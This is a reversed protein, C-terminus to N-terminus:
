YKGFDISEIHLGKRKELPPLQMYDGYYWNLYEHLNEPAYFREGAFNVETPVGYYKAPMFATKWRTRGLVDAIWETPTDNYKLYRGKVFRYLPEWKLLSSITLIIKKILSRSCYGKAKQNYTVWIKGWFYQIMRDLKHPSAYDVRFVDVYIGDKEPGLYYEGKERIHSGKLRIKSFHEPWDVEGEQFYYKEDNFYERALAVFKEYNKPTLAIDLDDDWPIFGGHRKAGLATGAFLYYDINNNRCFLDIDKMIMLIVSQLHETQTM